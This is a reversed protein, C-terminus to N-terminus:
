CVSNFMQPFQNTYASSHCTQFIFMHGSNLLALLLSKYTDKVTTQLRPHVILVVLPVNLFLSVLIRIRDM